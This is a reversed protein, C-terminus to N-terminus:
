AVAGAAEPAVVAVAEGVDLRGGAVVRANIGFCTEHARDLHKLMGPWKRRTDPDITPIVCRECPHLLDFTADGVHLVRGEWGAEAFADLGLELHVNTRYRRLDLETGLAGQVARHSAETTVLVSDPLDLIGTARRVLAVPRGLDEEFAAELDRSGWRHRRGAPDVLEAEPPADLAVADDAADPYRATWALLRPAQRATLPVDEGRKDRVFLAHARDGALGQRGLWTSAIAEGRASKLPWRHLSRVRGVAEM